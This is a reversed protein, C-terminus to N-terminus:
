GLFKEALLRCPQNKNGQLMVAPCQLYEFLIGVLIKGIGIAGTKRYHLCQTNPFRKSEICVKGKFLETENLHSHLLTLFRM